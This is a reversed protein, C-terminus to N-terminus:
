EEEDKFLSKMGVMRNKISVKIYYSVADHNTFGHKKAIDRLSLRRFFRDFMVDIAEKELGTKKLKELFRQEKEDYHNEPLFSPRVYSEAVNAHDFDGIPFAWISKDRRLLFRELHVCPTKEM